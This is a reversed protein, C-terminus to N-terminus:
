SRPRTNIYEAVEDEFFAIRRPSIRIPRPFDAITRKWRYLTVPHCGVRRACERPGILARGKSVASNPFETPMPTAESAPSLRRSAFSSSSKPM